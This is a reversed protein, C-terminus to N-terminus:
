TVLWLWLSSLRPSLVPVPLMVRRLGRLRAYERLLELYTVRDAGGIEYLEGGDPDRDVAALLYAVVDEIAIPQTQMRVWRPTVMVPLKEVLARVMEFSASGSGIVISARLEITPIGSARLIEGVEQRSRLHESLSGGHGLGGLYVVKRIGADRAATAFGRAAERDTDDFQRSSSMSHVLYVVTDVGELAARITTPDLLDGEVVETGPAVRAELVDPRRSLCRVRDGREELARLLRGGVYGSAGTLLILGAM